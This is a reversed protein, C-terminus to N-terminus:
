IERLPAFACLLLNVGLWWSALRNKEEARLVLGVSSHRRRRRFFNKAAQRSFEKAERLAKALFGLSRLAGSL